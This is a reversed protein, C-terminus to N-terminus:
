GGALFGGPYDNGYEAHQDTEVRGQVKNDIHAGGQQARFAGGQQGVLDPLGTKVAVDSESPYAQENPPNLEVPFPPIGVQGQVPPDPFYVHDARDDTRQGADIDSKVCRAADDGGQPKDCQTDNPRESGPLGVPMRSVAIGVPM